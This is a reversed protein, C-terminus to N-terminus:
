HGAALAAPSSAVHTRRRPLECSRLSIFPLSFVPSAEADEPLLRRESSRLPAGRQQEDAIGLWSLVGIFEGRCLSDAPLVLAGSGVAEGAQRLLGQFSPFLVSPNPSPLM